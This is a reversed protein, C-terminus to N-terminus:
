MEEAPVLGLFRADRAAAALKQDCELTNLYPADDPPVTVEGEPQSVLVYHLGHPHMGPRGYLRWLDAFWEADRCRSPIMYFPDNRPAPPILPSHPRKLKKSLACIREYDVNDDSM